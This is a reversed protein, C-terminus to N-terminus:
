IEAKRKPWQSPDTVLTGDNFVFPNPLKGALNFETIKILDQNFDFANM